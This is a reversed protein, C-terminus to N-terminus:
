LEFALELVYLLLFFFVYGVMGFLAIKHITPFIVPWFIFLCCLITRCSARHLSLPVQELLVAKRPMRFPAHIIVGDHVWISHRWWSHRVLLSTLIKHINRMVARSVPELLTTAPHSQYHRPPAHPHLMLYAVNMNQLRKRSVIIVRVLNQRRCQLAEPGAEPRHLSRLPCVRVPLGM